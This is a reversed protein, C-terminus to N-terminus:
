RFRRSSLTIIQATRDPPQPLGWRLEAMAASLAEWEFTTYADLIKDGTTRHSVSRVADQHAGSSRAVSIFTRRSDHLRRHRLGCAPLYHKVFQAAFENYSTLELGAARRLPGITPFMLDNAGIERGHTASFGEDIWWDLWLKLDPHVPVVRYQQGQERKTKAAPMVLRALPKVAREYDPRRLPLIESARAATLFYTAVMVRHMAPIPDFGVLTVVEDRNYVASERWKPDKDVPPPLHGRRASLAPPVHTILEDEAAELMIARFTCHINRVTRGALNKDEILKFGDRVVKFSTLEELTKDGFLPALHHRVHGDEDTLAGKVGRSARAAIVQPAYSAFTHKTANRLKPHVWTGLRFQRDLGQAFAEADRKTTAGTAERVQEGQVSYAVWYNPRRADGRNFVRFKPVARAM